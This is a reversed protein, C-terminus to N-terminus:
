NVRSLGLYYDFTIRRNKSVILERKKKTITKLPEMYVSFQKWPGFLRSYQSFSARVMYLM